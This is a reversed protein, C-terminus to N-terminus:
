DIRRINAGINRLQEDIREYGRDILEANDITTEGEAVLGALVLAAGGRLDGAILSAGTLKKVGRIIAMRDKQTYEAGMKALESAHKFRNEFVNEVIISTGNLVCCLAFIPAQMDTPFGPHPLTELHRIEKLERNVSLRISDDNVEIDCGTERLKAIISSLHSPICNKLNIEGGTIAAATLFTGAVIRDPIIKHIVSKDSIGDTGNIIVTSTGAGHVSYGLENLFTQLDEIEPERAANQVETKGKATVAAMMLNETAGVSPYDLHITNGRMDSGDCIISGHKELIKVNLMSLGSLHLDIPRNGIECGGPYVCRARKFRSLIPGLMFISSRLEKSLHSPMIFCSADKTRIDLVDFSKNTDAGLTRLISMMNGADLIDPCDTLTVCGTSLLTGALIPLVANKAGGVRLEGKLKAGGNVVIKSM